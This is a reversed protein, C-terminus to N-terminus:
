WLFLKNKRIHRHTPRTSTKDANVGPNMWTPSSWSPQFTCPSRGRVDVRQTAEREERHGRTRWYALDAEEQHDWPLKWLLSLWLQLDEQPRPRVCLMLTAELMRNALAFWLGHSPDVCPCSWLSACNLSSQKTILHVISLLLFIYTLIFILNNQTLIIECLPSAGLWHQFTLEVM